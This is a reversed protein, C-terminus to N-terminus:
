PAYDRKLGPWGVALTGARAAYYLLFALWLGDVGLVPRLAFDLAVYIALAAAMANRMLAGRTTGIMLGDLQWSPWGVVPVLACWILADLAAARAAPDDTM